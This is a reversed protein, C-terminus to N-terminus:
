KRELLVVKQNDSNIDSLKISLKPMREVSLGVESLFDDVPLLGDFYEKNIGEFYYHMPIIIQPEIDTVIRAADKPGLSYKDGVPIMLINVNGVAEVQKSSLVHGLDGLHLVKLGESEILYITNKGREEGQKDDHYTSFGIISIGGIEYEGPGDIIKRYGYAAEVFGHDKHNHSVLVADVEERPMKIGVMKSDFPDILLKTNLSKIKFCAHGLYSIEM